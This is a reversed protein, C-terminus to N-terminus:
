TLAATSMHGKTGMDLAIWQPHSKKNIRERASRIRSAIQCPENELRKTSIRENPDLLIITQM